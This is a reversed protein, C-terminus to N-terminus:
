ASAELAIKVPLDSNLPHVYGRFAATGERRFLVTREAGPALHFFEDDAAFGEVEFALSQVFARTKLTVDVDGSARPRAVATLGLDGGRTSPSPTSPLGLPFYFAQPTAHFSGPSAEAVHLTAVVLDHSPPGFRYSYTFDLFTEFM